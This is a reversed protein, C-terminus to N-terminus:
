CCYNSCFLLMKGSSFICYSSFYFFTIRCMIEPKRVIFISFIEYQQPNKQYMHSIINIKTEKNIYSFIESLYTELKPSKFYIKQSSYTISLNEYVDSNIKYVIKKFCYALGISELYPRWTVTVHVSNIHSVNAHTLYNSQSVILTIYNRHTTLIYNFNNRFGTWLAIIYLQVFLITRIIVKVSEYNHRYM